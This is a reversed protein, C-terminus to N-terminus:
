GFRRLMLKLVPEALVLMTGVGILVWGWFQLNHM